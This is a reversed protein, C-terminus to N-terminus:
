MKTLPVRQWPFRSVTFFVPKLWFTIRLQFKELEIKNKKDENHIVWMKRFLTCIRCLDTFFFAVYSLVFNVFPYLVIDAIEWLICFQYEKPSM